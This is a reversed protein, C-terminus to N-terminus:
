EGCRCAPIVTRSATIIGGLRRMVSDNTLAEKVDKLRPVRKRRRRVLERSFRALDTGYAALTNASLGGEVRVHDLFRQIATDITYSPPV